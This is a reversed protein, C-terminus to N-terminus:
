RDAGKSMDSDLEPRPEEAKREGFKAKMFQQFSQWSLPKTLYDDMGCALAKTRYEPLAHATLAVICCPKYGKVKELARIQQTAEFGDLSPMECDMLILNWNPANRQFVAVAEHGDEAYTAVLNLRRLYGAVVKRNVKNDEAVLIHMEGLVLEKPAAEQKKDPLEKVLPAMFTFSFCSGRGLTSRVQIEGGMLSVLLRCISLGLGTGGFERSTTVDAQSFPKFLRAQAEMSIGVGTDEVEIIIIEMEDQNGLKRARLQITGEKTFKIANGLLNFIVQNLRAPDGFLRTPTGPAIQLDLTVGPKQQGLQLMNVAAHLLLELDFAEMHLSTKNAELRSFDLIDNIVSLLHKGSSDIVQLLHHQNPNLPSDQLLEVMGLVANMPTRLEHSMRALFAAQAESEAKLLVLRRQDHKRIEELIRIRHAQGVSLLLMLLAISLKFGYNSLFFFGPVLGKASLALATGTLLMGTWAILYYVALRSGQLVRATVVVLQGVLTIVSLLAVVKVGTAVSALLFVPLMALWVLILAQNLRDLWNKRGVTELYYRAFQCIMVMMGTSTFSIARSQWYLAEPWFSFGIGDLVSCVSACFLSVLSFLGYTREGTGLFLSLNYLMLALALGYFLGMEWLLWHTHVILSSPSALGVPLSFTSSTQAWLHWTSQGPPVQIPIVFTRTHLPRNHFPQVDGFSLPREKDPRYLLVRDLQPFAIDLYLQVPETSPNDLRFRFWHPQDTFGLGILGPSPTFHGRLAEILVPEGHSAPMLELFPDIRLYDMETSVPVPEPRIQAAGPLAAFFLALLLLRPSLTM